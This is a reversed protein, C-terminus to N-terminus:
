AVNLESSFNHLVDEITPQTPGLRIHRIHQSVPYSNQASNHPGYVFQPWRGNINVNGIRVPLMATEYKYYEYELWNVINPAGVNQHLHM